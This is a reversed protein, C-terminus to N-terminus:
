GAGSIYAELHRITESQESLIANVLDGISIIGILRSGRMVPLHRIRQDTIIRMCEEMSYEPDVFIVPSSMIQAVTIEKSSHGRLIVKRAYDRESVIGVVHEDDVVILAGVEKEAMKKIADFVSDSPAATHIVGRKQELISRISGTLQM